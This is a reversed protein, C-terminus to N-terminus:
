AEDGNSMEEGEKSKAFASNLADMAEKQMSPLVHSYVNLTISINSHGLIEQVIKPHIGMGLLLTAASHRLDHFRINPLEAEQLLTKLPLRIDRDPNLTTGISTCFVLDHHVWRDGVKEKAEQQRKRHQELVKLVFPAIIVNRRSKKTKPAAETYGKKGDHQLKSPIRSMIRRVQLTGTKFDIDQWKLGMLEGRRMGTALALTLIAEIPRGRALALLKHIQEMTLPQIEFQETRPPDVLDCVNETVLKWKKATDLAKHLVNHFTNVTTPSFGEKLKTAYFAQVHQATLKQLQYRGLSPVIHLRVVEEYREYTRPRVSQEQTSELWHKLFQEV